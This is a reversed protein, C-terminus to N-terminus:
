VSHTSRRRQDKTEVEAQFEASISEGQRNPSEAMTELYVQKLEFPDVKGEPVGMMQELADFQIGHGCLLHVLDIQDQSLTFPEAQEKVPSLERGKGKPKGTNIKLMKELDQIYEKIGDSANEVDREEPGSEGDEEKEKEKEKEKGKCKRKGM